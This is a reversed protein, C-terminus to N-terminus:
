HTSVTNLTYLLLKWLFYLLRLMRRSYYYAHPVDSLGNGYIAVFPTEAWLSLHEIHISFRSFTAQMYCRTDDERFKKLELKM